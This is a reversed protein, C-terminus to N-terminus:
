MAIFDAGSRGAFFKVALSLPARVLAVQVFGVLPLHALYVWYAADALMGLVAHSRHCFRLFLGLWGFVSLSALLAMDVALAWRWIYTLNGDLYQRMLLGMSALLLALGGFVLASTLPSWGESRLAGGHDAWAPASTLVTALLAALYGM